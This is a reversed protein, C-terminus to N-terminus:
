LEGTLFQEHNGNVTIVKRRGQKEAHFVGLDVLGSIEKSVAPVSWGVHQAADELKAGPNAKYYLVLERGIKPNKAPTVLALKKRRKAKKLIALNVQSLKSEAALARIRWYEVQAMMPNGKQIQINIWNPKSLELVPLPCEPFDNQWCIILDCERFDHAHQIFNRAKFEFEVRWEEGNKRMVADPFPVGIAIIEWGSSQLQSCFLAVVGQENTPEFM